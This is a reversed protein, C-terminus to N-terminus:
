PRLDKSAKTLFNREEDSLSAIGERSIKELLDDIRRKTQRADEYGRLQRTEARKATLQDFVPRAKMFLFGWAAGGLHAAHAIGDEKGVVMMFTELAIYGLVFYKAPLVFWFKRQPFLVAFAVLVGFVAGSAGIAPIDPSVLIHCLGAFIGASGYLFVFRRTGLGREVDKGLLFLAFMNMAIHGFDGHMFMSTLFQWPQFFKASLGFLEAMEKATVFNPAIWQQVIFVACNAILLARVAPSMKGGFSVRMRRVPKDSYQQM